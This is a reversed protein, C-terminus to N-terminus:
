LWKIYNEGRKNTQTALHKKINAYTANGAARNINSKDIRKTADEYDHQNNLLQAERHIASAEAM